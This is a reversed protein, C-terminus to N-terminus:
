ITDRKVLPVESRSESGTQQLLIGFGMVIRCCPRMKAVACHSGGSLADREAQTAVCRQYFVHLPPLTWVRSTGSHTVSIASEVVGIQSYAIRTLGLACGM